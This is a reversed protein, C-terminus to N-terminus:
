RQYITNLMELFTKISGIYNMQNTKLCYYDKEDSYLKRAKAKGHKVLGLVYAATTWRLAGTADNLHILVVRDAIGHRAAYIVKVSLICPEKGGFGTVDIFCLVDATTLKKKSEYVERPVVIFDYKDMVDSHYRDVYKDSLTGVGSAVMVLGLKDM